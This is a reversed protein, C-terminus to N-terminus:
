ESIKNGCYSCFQADIPIKEGCMPCYKTTREKPITTEIHTPKVELPQESKESGIPSRIILYIILGILGAVLVVLLWIAADMNRKKADRYVWICIYIQLIVSGIIILVIIIWFLASVWVDRFQLIM